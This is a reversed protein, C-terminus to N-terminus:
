RAEPWLRFVGHGGTEDWTTSWDAVHAGAPSTWTAPLDGAAENTRAGAARAIVTLRSIRDRYFKEFWM